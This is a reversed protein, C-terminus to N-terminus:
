QETNLKETLEQIQHSLSAVQEAKELLKKQLDTMGVKKGFLFISVYFM